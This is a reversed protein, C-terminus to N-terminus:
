DWEKLETEDPALWDSWCSLSRQEGCVFCPGTHCTACHGEPWRLGIENACAGCIYGRAKYLEKYTRKNEEIYDSQESM